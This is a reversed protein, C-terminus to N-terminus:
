TSNALRRSQLQELASPKSDTYTSASRQKVRKVMALGYSACCLDSNFDCIWQYVDVSQNYNVRYLMVCTLRM